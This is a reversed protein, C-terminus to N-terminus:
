ASHIYINGDALSAAILNGDPSFKAAFVNQPSNAITYKNSVAAKLKSAAHHHHSDM